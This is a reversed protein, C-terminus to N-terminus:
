LRIGLLSRSNDTTSLLPPTTQGARGIYTPIRSQSHLTRFDLGRFYIWSFQRLCPLKGFTITPYLDLFATINGQKRSELHDSFIRSNSSYPEGRLDRRLKEKKRTPFGHYQGTRCSPWKEESHDARPSSMSESIGSDERVMELVRFLLCHVPLYSFVM